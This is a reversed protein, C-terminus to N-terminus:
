EFDWIRESRHFVFLRGASDVALGTVQGLGETVSSPWADVLSVNFEKKDESKSSNVLSQQGRKDGSLSAQNSEETSRTTRPYMLDKNTSVKSNLRTSKDQLVDSPRTTQESVSTSTTIDGTVDHEASRSTKFPTSQTTEQAPIGSVLERAHQDTTAEVTPRDSTVNDENSIVHKSITIQDNDTITIPATSVHEETDPSSTAPVSFIVNLITLKAVIYM